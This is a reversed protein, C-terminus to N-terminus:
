LVIEWEQNKNVFYTYGTSMAILEIGDKSEKNAVYVTKGRNESRLYNILAPINPSIHHLLGNDDNERVFAQSM